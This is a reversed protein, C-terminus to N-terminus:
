RIISLPLVAQLLIEYIMGDFYYTQLLAYGKKQDKQRCAPQLGPALSIGAIKFKNFVPALPIARHMESRVDWVTM